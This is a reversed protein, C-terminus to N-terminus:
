FYVRVQVHAVAPYLGFESRVSDALADTSPAILTPAGTTPDIGLSLPVEDPRAGVPVYGGFVVDAEDAVSWSGGLAVLASPDLVNVIVSGSVHILPTLEQSVAVAGYVRGLAWVEGRLFRDGSLEDLYGSPDAAGFTQLYAEGTLTTTGTPRGDAGVVARLFPEESEGGLAGPFTVAADGHVGVPGISSTTSAGVVVDGHVDGAFLGVDTVGVTGQGYAAAILDAGSPDADEGVVPEGGWAAVATVRGSVGAYADARLADVGPKYETDITAPSFPNVLDLPAFVRGSGFSIPQRGLAVDAHPLKASLVLRDIRHRLVLGDGLDPAWSLPVLEPASLGVGTGVGVSTASTPTSAAIAWHAELRLPGAQVTGKLRGSAVAEGFPSADLGFASLAEDEDLGAKALAALAADDLVLWRATDGALFFTKVDGHLEAQVPAEAHDAPADM